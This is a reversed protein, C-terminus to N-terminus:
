FTNGQLYVAISAMIQFDMIHHQHRRVLNKDHIHSHWSTMCSTYTCRVICLTPMVSGEGKGKETIM